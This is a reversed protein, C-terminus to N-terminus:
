KLLENCREKYAIYIKEDRLEDDFMEVFLNYKHKLYDLTAEKKVYVIFPLNCFLDACKILMAKKGQKEVRGFLEKTQEKKDDIKEDFTVSRVLDAISKGFDKRINTYTIATDEILDHLIGAIVVDHDYGCHYLTTGVMISHSVVPKPNHGTKHINEALYIFAENMKGELEFDKLEYMKRKEGERKKIIALM